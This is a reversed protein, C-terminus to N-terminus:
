KKSLYHIEHISSFGGGIRGAGTFDGDRCCSQWGMLNQVDNFKSLQAVFLISSRKM